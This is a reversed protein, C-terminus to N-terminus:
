YRVLQPRPVLHVLTVLLDLLVPLGKPDPSHLPANDPLVPNVLLDLLVLHVLLALMVPLVQLDPPVPIVPTVLPAPNDTPAPLDLLDMPVPHAPPAQLAALVRKNKAMVLLLQLVMLVPNVMRDQPVMKVPPVPNDLLVPLGLPATIPNHVVNAAVVQPAPAILWVLIMNVNPVSFQLLSIRIEM